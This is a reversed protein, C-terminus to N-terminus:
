FKFKSVPIAIQDLMSKMVQIRRAYLIRRLVIRVVSLYFYLLMEFM